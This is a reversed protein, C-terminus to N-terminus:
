SPADSAPDAEDVLLAALRAMGRSLTKRVAVESKGLREAIEAHSMGLLRACTVVERQEDTLREFAREVAALQERQSASHSPTPVLDALESPLQTERVPNRKQARLYVLHDVVKRHATTFLWERFGAEGGYQFRDAHQLVERAVSQVIDCSEERARLEAGMRLRVFARLSPLYRAVMAQVDDAPPNTM